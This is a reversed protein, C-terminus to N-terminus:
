EGEIFAPPAEYRGEWIATEARQAAGRLFSRELHGYKEETTTISKHGLQRQVYILPLGSALWSAAATHRLDHLRLSTRLGAGRLAPKHRDTTVVSRNVRGGRPGVFVPQLHPDAASREGQRARLDMLIGRLRPGFEVSRFRDGKTSGSIEGGAPARKRSSLVHLAMEDLDVDAWTLDLAESIRLGTAILLEALPRYHDSCADLYRPIENLRLYDMEKHERPLKIRQRAGPTSAAPNRAILGDEVAHGLAVRLVVLSNNITKTSLTREGAVEPRPEGSYRFLLFRRGRGTSAREEGSQVVSREHVLQTLWRRATDRSLGLEAALEFITFERLAAAAARAHAITTRKRGDVEKTLLEAVYRRVDSPQIAELKMEGFYPKLRREIHVRYDRYTGEELQPRHESLWRDIYPGFREASAVVEGRDVAAMTQNLWREADRRSRFGRKQKQVGNSTRYMVSYRRAGDALNYPYITGKAM